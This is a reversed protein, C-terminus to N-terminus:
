AVMLQSDSVLIDKLCCEPSPIPMVLKQNHRKSQRVCRRDEHIKHVSHALRVQIFKNDNEDVIDQDIRLTQLFVLVM